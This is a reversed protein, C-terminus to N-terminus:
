IINEEKFLIKLAEVRAHIGDLFDTDNFGYVSPEYAGIVKVHNKAALSRFCQEAELSSKMRPNLLFQKYTAQPYPPLFIVVEVGKEQLYGILKDLIYKRKLDIQFDYAKKNESLMQAAARRIHEQTQPVLMQKPWSLSGDKLKIFYDATKEDTALFGRTEIGRAQNIGKTVASQFYSLSFLNLYQPPISTGIWKTGIGLKQSMLKIDQDISHYRQRSNYANLLWPSAELILTKPLIGRSDYNQLIGLYDPILAETVSSNVVSKGSFFVTGIQLSRSSGLILIDPRANVDNIYCKQVVREDFDVANAINHGSTLIKAINKEYGEGRYLCAPDVFYNTLTILFVIPTFFLLKKVVKVVSSKESSFRPDM